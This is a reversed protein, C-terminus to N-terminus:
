AGAEFENKIKRFAYHAYRTVSEESLQGEYRAKGFWGPTFEDAIRVSQRVYTEFAKSFQDHERIDAFRTGVAGVHKPLERTLYYSLYRTTFTSYFEHMLGKFESGSFQKRLVGRSTEPSVDFLSPLDSSVQRHLAETFSNLALEGMDSGSKAERLRADTSERLSGILDLFTADGGVTFGSEWLSIAPDKAQLAAGFKFIQTLVTAFAPDQPVKALGAQAAEFSARALEPVGTGSVILNGVGRWKETRELARPRLHGM